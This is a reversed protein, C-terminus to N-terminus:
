DLHAHGGALDVPDAMVINDIYLVRDRGWEIVVSKGFRDTRRDILNNAM